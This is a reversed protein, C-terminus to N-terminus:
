CRGSNKGGDSGNMKTIFGSSFILIPSFMSRVAILGQVAISNLIRQFLPAPQRESSDTFCPRTPSQIPGRRRTTGSLTSSVPGATPFRQM